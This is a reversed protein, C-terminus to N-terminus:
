NISAPSTSHISSSSIRASSSASGHPDSVGVKCTRVNAFCFGVIAPIALLCWLIERDCKSARQLLDAFMRLNANRVLKACPSEHHGPEVVRDDVIQSAFANIHYRDLM